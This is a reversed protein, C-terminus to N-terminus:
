KEAKSNRFMPTVVPSTGFQIEGMKEFGHREYLSINRKNTFELYSPLGEDDIRKLAHKMLEAGFGAGQHAPDVAILPLYWCSEHPHYNDMSEFVRFADELVAKDATAELFVGFKDEDSTHGPPFWLAAGEFNETIYASGTEVSGSGFADFGPTCKLYDSAGPWLWRVFPDSSFGLLITGLLREKEHKEALPSKPYENFVRRLTKHNLRKITAQEKGFRFVPAIRTM